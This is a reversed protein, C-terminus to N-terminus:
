LDKKAAAKKKAREAISADLGGDSILFLSGEDVTTARKNLSWNADNEHWDCVENDFKAGMRNQIVGATCRLKGFKEQYADRISAYDPSDFKVLIGAVKGGSISINLGNIEVGALTTFGHKLDARLIACNGKEMDPACRRPAQLKAFADGAPMGLAIGKVDQAMTSGCAVAASFVAISAIKRM